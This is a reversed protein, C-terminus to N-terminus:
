NIIRKWLWYIVEKIGGEKWCDKIMQSIPMSCLPCIEPYDEINYDYDEPCFNWITKCNKCKYEDEKM